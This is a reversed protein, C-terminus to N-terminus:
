CNDNNEVEAFVDRFGKMNEAMDGRFVGTGAVIVNVGAEVVKKVNEIKIGGDMEIDIDLGNESIYKRLAKAKDLTREILKQGGYGPYVSMLLVMNVKDLYPLIVDIDTDPSISVAAKKGMEIIKDLTASLDECAEAHVTIGDAGAEAFKEIYRIPENVMLHVDFFLETCKRLSRVVPIGISINPVFAGDMVDIHVYDANNDDLRGIEEGLKSFDAALISPAMKYEIKM